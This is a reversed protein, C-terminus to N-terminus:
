CDSDTLRARETTLALRNGMQGGIIVFGEKADWRDTEQEAPQLLLGAFCSFYCFISAM